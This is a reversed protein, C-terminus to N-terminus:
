RGSRVSDGSPRSAVSPKPAIPAVPPPPVLAEPSPTSAAVLPSAMAEIPTHVTSTNQLQSPPLGWKANNDVRSPLTKPEAILGSEHVDADDRLVEGLADQHRSLSATARDLNAQVNDLESGLQRARQLLLEASAGKSDLRTLEERLKSLQQLGQQIQEASTRAAGQEVRALRLFGDKSAALEAQVNAYNRQFVAFGISSSSITCVIALLLLNHRVWRQTGLARARVAALGTQCRSLEAL